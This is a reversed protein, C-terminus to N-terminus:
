LHSPSRLLFLVPTVTGLVPAYVADTIRRNKANAADTIRRVRRMVSAGSAFPFDLPRNQSFM